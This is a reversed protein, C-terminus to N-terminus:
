IESLDIEGREATASEEGLARVKERKVRKREIAARMESTVILEVAGTVLNPPQAENGKTPTVVTPSQTSKMM